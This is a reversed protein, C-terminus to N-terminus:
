TKLLSDATTLVQREEGVVHERLRTASVQLGTDADAELLGGSQAHYSQHVRRVPLRGQAFLRGTSVLLLCRGHASCRIAALLERAIRGLCPLLCGMRRQIHRRPTSWSLSGLRRSSTSGHVAHRHVLFDDQHLPSANGRRFKQCVRRQISIETRCDLGALSICPPRRRSYRKTPKSLSHLLSPATRYAGARRTLSERESEGKM